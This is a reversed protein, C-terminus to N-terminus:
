YLQNPSSGVETIYWDDGYRKLTYSVYVTKQRGSGSYGREDDYYVHKGYAVASHDDRQRVRYFKFTATRIASMADSTMEYYDQRDLSYAYEGQLYVEITSGRRVHDMLLDIDGLEWARRIDRLPESVSSYDREMLYYGRYAPYDYDVITIPLDFYVYHVHPHHVYIVRYSCLYPPFIGYYYCYVSPYCYGPTYDYWYYRYHGPFWFNVGVNVHYDDHTRPNRRSDDSRTDRREQRESWIRGIDAYDKRYLGRTDTSRVERQESQRFPIESRVTPSPAPASHGKLRDSSFTPRPEESRTVSPPPSSSRESRPEPQSRSEQRPESRTVSPPPPSSGESRPEPQSRSEQRPESSSRQGSDSSRKESSSRDSSSQSESSKRAGKAYAYQDPTVAFMVALIAILLSVVTLFATKKCHM